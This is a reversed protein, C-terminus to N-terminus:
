LVQTPAGTTHPRPCTAGKAGGRKAGRPLYMRLSKVHIGFKKYWPEVTTFNISKIGTLPDKEHYGTYMFAGFLQLNANHSGGPDLIWAVEM